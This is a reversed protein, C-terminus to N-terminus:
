PTTLVRLRDRALISRSAEEQVGDVLALYTEYEEVARRRNVPELAEALNFRARAYNPKLIIAEEFAQIAEARRGQQALVTGLSNIVTPAHPTVQLSETLAQKAEELKGREKFALGRKHHAEALRAKDSIGARIAKGYADIAVDTERTGCSSFWAAEGRAFQQLALYDVADKVIRDIASQKERIDNASSLFPKQLLSLVSEYPDLSVTALLLVPSGDGALVLYRITTREDGTRYLVTTKVAGGRLLPSSDLYFEASPPLQALTRRLVPYPGLPLGQGFTFMAGVLIEDESLFYWNDHNPQQSNAPRAIWQGAGWSGSPLSPDGLIALLVSKPMCLSTAGLLDLDSASPPLPSSPPTTVCGVCGLLFCAALLCTLRGGKSAVVM